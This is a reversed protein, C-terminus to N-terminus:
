LVTIVILGDGGFSGSPAGNGNSGRGSYTSFPPTTNTGTQTNALLLDTSDIFGGGGGGGGASAAGGYFGGGGGVLPSSVAGGAGLGFTSASPGGIRLSGPSAAGYATGGSGGSPASQAALGGGAGGIGSGGAGGGGAIIIPVSNTLYEIGSGGGGAGSAGARGVVVNYSVNEKFTMIGTSFGGAGGNAPQASGGGGWILVNASFTTNPTLNWAGFSSLTLVGASIRTLDYTTRGDIAPSITITVSSNKRVRLDNNVTSVRSLQPM